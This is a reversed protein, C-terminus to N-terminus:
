DGMAAGGGRPDSTGSWGQPTRVIATVAAFERPSPRHEVNYGLERLTTDAERSISAPQILVVDPLHQHHIRPLAVAVAANQGYDIVNSITQWVATIIRPGGGAGAVLVVEGKPGEVISPSMSSLMRKGPEIKNRQWQVLGFTNATGPKSTFDDMENNLLFGNVTVGSGWSTNLTTTLAVAMGKGDVVSLNTTHDGELLPKVDDSKSARPGITAALKDQYGQSLLKGLPMDKVFAPDGLLQNRAAFARRWVETLTRIHDAGHWPLKGLDIGRLMGATMALVLGGSSPPPMSIVRHGRYPFRLPERWVVKYGALDAATIIGKGAEMEAVIAAATEGQYFGAAGRDRIRELAVALAPIKVTAGLALPVGGPVWIAGTAPFAQLRDARYAISEALEPEVTFGDRALKISPEVLAKWPMKGLKKHLAALGAVSGPVGSARHGILSDKTPKGDPGIYMDATAAAPATERFDLALAKGKGVRVVAFGGGGLNGATPHTVALAFSTAVAADVANGGASIVDRGVATAQASESAVMFTKGTGAVEPEEGTGSADTRFVPDKVPGQTFPSPAPAADVPVPPPAPADAPIAADVLVSPPATVVPAPAAPPASGSCAVLTATLTAVLLRAASTRM